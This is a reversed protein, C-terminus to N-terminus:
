TQRHSITSLEIASLKPKHESTQKLGQCFEKFPKRLNRCSLFCAYGTIAHNMMELGLLTKFIFQYNSLEIYKGQFTHFIVSIIANNVQEPDLYSNFFVIFSRPVVFISFITLFFLVWISSALKESTILPLHRLKYLLITNLIMLTLIPLFDDIIVYSIITYIVNNYVQFGYYFNPNLTTTLFLRTQDIHVSSFRNPILNPHQSILSCILLLCILQLTRKQKSRQIKTTSISNVNYRNALWYKIAILREVALFVKLWNTVNKPYRYLVIYVVMTTVNLPIIYAQLLYYFATAFLRIIDFIAIFLLFLGFPFRYFLSRYISFMLAINGIIGFIICIISIIQGINFAIYVAQSPELVLTSYNDSDITENNVSLSAM